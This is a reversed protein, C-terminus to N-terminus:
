TFCPFTMNKRLTRIAMSSAKSRCHTNTCSECWGSSLKGASQHHYRIEFAPWALKPKMTEVGLRTRWARKAWARIIPEPTCFYAFALSLPKRKVMPNLGRSKQIPETMLCLFVCCSWFLPWRSTLCANVWEGMFKRFNCTTWAVLTCTQQTRKRFYDSVSESHNIAITIIITEHILEM